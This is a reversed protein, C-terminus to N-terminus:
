EEEITISVVVEIKLRVGECKENKIVYVSVM